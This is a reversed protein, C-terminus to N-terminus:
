SLLRAKAPYIDLLLTEGFVQFITEEIFIDLNYFGQANTITLDLSLSVGKELRPFLISPAVICLSSLM